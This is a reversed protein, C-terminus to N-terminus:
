KKCYVEISKSIFQATGDAHKDINNKFREDLVYMQGLGALTENTCTYYNETIHSQLKMVLSQTEASDPKAGNKMCVAFEGLIDNMETGLNNWKDESYDKTKETHEKYADTSGWKEHAENRYKEFDSNDFAKMNKM